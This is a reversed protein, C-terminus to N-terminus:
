SFFGTIKEKAKNAVDEVNGMIVESASFYGVAEFAKALAEIESSTFGPRIALKKVEIKEGDKEETFPMEEYYGVIFSYLEEKIPDRTLTKLKNLNLFRACKIRNASGQAQESKEALVSGAGTMQTMLMMLKKIQADQVGYAAIYSNLKSTIFNIDEILLSITKGTQKIVENLMLERRKSRTIENVGTLKRIGAYAGVGILVAVGIGTTMSSLGLIGGMGLSALGSTIGAASMGVVSGSIYVAALPTGVAAAKASLVKMATVLQDDTVDEKLMKHDTQIAAVTLEIEEDTVSLMQRHTKLFQFNDITSSSTSMHVNILDKVLSIHLAKVHGEPSEQDIIQMLGEMSDLGEISSMYGRLKVRTDPKLNLRTILLLVEAFEKEDVVGDNDYAMNIIVKLYAEKLSESLEEITVLQKEEKFEEFETHISTLIEALKQYDCDIMHEIVVSAGEQLNIVISPDTKKGDEGVSSRVFQVNSIFQYSISIPDSFSPRYIVQEGTFLLGDKGSGFLTNDFLGAVSSPSGSFEFSKVANNLKKQDINPAVQMNKASVSGLSDRLFLNINSM